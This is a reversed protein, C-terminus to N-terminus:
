ERHYPHNNLIAVARYLQEVLLVRALGHPLTLASLQLLQDAEAKLSPDMGDTGGIVFVTERGEAQWLKLKDALQRTTWNAGREDLAILRAGKPMAQRLRQAEDAMVQEASRGSNRKDPALELLKMPWDRPFRRLYDDVGAQQWAPLKHSLALITLRM